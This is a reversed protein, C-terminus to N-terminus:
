TLIKLVHIMVQLYEFGVPIEPDEIRRYDILEDRKVLKIEKKWLSSLFFSIVSEETWPNNNTAKKKKQKVKKARKAMM